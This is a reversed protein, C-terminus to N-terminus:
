VGTIQAIEAALGDRREIHRMAKTHEEKSLVSRERLSDSDTEPKEGWAVM